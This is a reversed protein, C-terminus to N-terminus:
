GDHGEIVAWLGKDPGVEERMREIRDAIETVERGAGLPYVDFAAVDYAGDYMRYAGPKWGQFLVFAPRDPDAKKQLNYLQLIFEPPAGWTSDNHDAEDKLFWGLNGPHGKNFKMVEYMTDLAAEESRYQREIWYSRTDTFFQSTCLLKNQACVELWDPFGARVRDQYKGDTYIEWQRKWQTEWGQLIIANVHDKAFQKWSNVRMGKVLVGAIFNPGQGPVYEMTKGIAFRSPQKAPWFGPSPAPAPMDKTTVGVWDIPLDGRLDGYDGRGFRVAYHGADDLATRSNFALKATKWQHDFQGGIQGLLKWDNKTLVEVSTPQVLNDKFRILLFGNTASPLARIFIKASYYSKIVRATVYNGLAKPKTVWYFREPTEYRIFEKADRDGWLWYNEPAPPFYIDKLTNYDDETGFDTFYHFQTRDVGGDLAYAAALSLAAVIGAIVLGWRRMIGGSQSKAVTGGSAAAIL